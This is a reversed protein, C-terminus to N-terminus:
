KILNRQPIDNVSYGLSSTARIDRTQNGHRLFIWLNQEGFVIPQIQLLNFISYKELAYLVRKLEWIWIKHEKSITATWIMGARFTKSLLMKIMELRNFKSISSHTVPVLLQWALASQVFVLPDYVQWHLVPKEPFPNVQVPVQCHNM